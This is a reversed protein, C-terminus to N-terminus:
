HIFSVRHIGKSYNRNLLETIKHFDAESETFNLHEVNVIVVPFDLDLRFYDFYVDQISRLYQQSIQQEYTRGRKNINAKLQEVPRHLYVLLGPPRLHPALTNYIQDFLKFEMDNLNNRAFLRTKDFFYDALVLSSFLHGSQVNESLQNYRETMFFLEVPLAYRTPNEYFHPLFPNDAFEELILELDYHEAMKQCFSTKGSGINGEITIYQYPFQANM